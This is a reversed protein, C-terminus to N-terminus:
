IYFHDTSCIVFQGTIDHHKCSIDQHWIPVLADAIIMIDQSPRYHVMFWILCHVYWISTNTWSLRLEVALASSNCREQVLGDVNYDIFFVWLMTVWGDIDRTNVPKDGWLSLLKHSYLSLTICSNLLMLGFWEIQAILHLLPKCSCVNGASLKHIM